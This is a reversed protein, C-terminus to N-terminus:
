TNIEVRKQILEAPSTFFIACSKDRILFKEASYKKNLIIQIM